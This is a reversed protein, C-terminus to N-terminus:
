KTYIDKITQSNNIQTIKKTKDNKINYEYIKRNKEFFIKNNDYYIFGYSNENIKEILNPYINLIAETKIDNFIVFKEMGINEKGVNDAFKCFEQMEIENTLTNYRYFHNYDNEKYYFIYNNLKYILKNINNNQEIYTENDITEMEKLIQNLEINKKNEKIKYKNDKTKFKIKYKSNILYTKEKGSTIFGGNTSTRIYIDSTKFILFLLIMLIILCLIIIKFMKKYNM